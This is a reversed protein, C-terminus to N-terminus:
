SLVERYAALTTRACADWTFRRARIPGRRAFGARLAQDDLLEEIKAATGEPSGPDLTLGAGGVVEPLSARDSVLVPVGSAMAELPPLGFGEYLSPFVFLAAGAYLNPLDIAPVHGLFRIQGRDTLLRLERELNGARWGRAGAIVLPFRDRLAAPLLAYAALVHGLNKRPEITGVSLIYGGHRLDLPELTTATEEMNRPRFEPGVGLHAIKVRERRVAFTSLLEDRVFASDVLIAASQALARPLGRELWRIRDAPHTAPYRLWSLDHVTVVVPVDYRLPIYNPEHYLEIAHRRLGHGFMLRQQAGRLERKWPLWRKVFERLPPNRGAAGGAPAMPSEHRWRVGYFSYVDVADLARLAAGLQAIYNGIGTLPSLLPTANIAVRPMTRASSGPRPSARINAGALRRGRAFPPIIRWWGVKRPMGRGHM